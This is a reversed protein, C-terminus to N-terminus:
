NYFIFLLANNLLIFNIMSIDFIIADIKDYSRFM